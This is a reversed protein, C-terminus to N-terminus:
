DMFAEKIFGTSENFLSYCKLKNANGFACVCKCAACAVGYWLKCILTSQKEMPCTFNLVGAGFHSLRLLLHLMPYYFMSQIYNVISSQLIAACGAVFHKQLPATVLQM